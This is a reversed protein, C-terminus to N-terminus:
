EPVYGENGKPRSFACSSHAAAKSPQSCVSTQVSTPMEESVPKEKVIEITIEDPEPGYLWDHIKQELWNQLLVLALIVLLTLVSGVILYTIAYEKTM